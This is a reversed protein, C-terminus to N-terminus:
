LTVEDRIDFLALVLRGVPNASNRCYGLVDAFTEFPRFEADYRFAVERGHEVLTGVRQGDLRVVASRPTM